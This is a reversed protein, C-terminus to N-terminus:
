KCAALVARWIHDQNPKVSEPQSQAFVNDSKLMTSADDLIGTLQQAEIKDALTRLAKALASAEAKFTFGGDVGRTPMILDSVGCRSSEIDVHFQMGPYPLRVDLRSVYGDTKPDYHSLVRFSTDLHKPTYAEAHSAPMPEVYDKPLRIRLQTGIKADRSADALDKHWNAM